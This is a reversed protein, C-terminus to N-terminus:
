VADYDEGQASEPLLEVIKRIIKKANIGSTATVPIVECAPLKQQWYKILDETESKSYLDIKNLLIFAPIKRKSLLEVLHQQEEVKQFKDTVFVLVDADEFAESVFDNMSSQLKYAPQNIYGPTDSFVIQYDGGNVMALIRHRTTQAKPSMISLREGVLANMLTSKGTNPLGIINVFGAKHAM